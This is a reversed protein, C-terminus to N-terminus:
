APGNQGRVLLLPTTTTHLVKDAVSGLMWRKWGGYGHTAMVILDVHRHAAEDVIAEAVDVYDVAVAPTVAAQHQQLDRALASLAQTAQNRQMLLLGAYQTRPVVAQLIIMEANASRALAIAPPLACRAMDSGDLPVMIRRLVPDCASAHATSRVVFIPVAVTQIVRDAVSGLAWRQPGGYGHTAMAILTDPESQAAEVICIHPIGTRVDTDVMLEAARLTEAQSTLYIEAQERLTEWAHREIESYFTVAGGEGRHSVVGSTIIGERDVDTLIHLLRIRAELLGALLQAYPLVQEALISGDLPVLITKM